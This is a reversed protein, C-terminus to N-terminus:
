LIKQITPYSSLVKYSQQSIREYLKLALGVDINQNYLEPFEMLIQDKNAVTVKKFKSIFELYDVINRKRDDDNSLANLDAKFLDYDYEKINVGHYELAIRRSICPVCYGCHKNEPIRSIMWCSASYKLNTRFAKPIIAIVEAKTLYLFPNQIEFQANSLLQRFASKITEVFYPDATHTSFPGVRSQNLPLHIAFQGNEAMFLVKNFGCRRTVLTALALFLFSRTRQSNERDETFPFEEFKRGYVKIHIHRVNRKFFDEISKHVNRQSDDVVTNGHSNHSLLVLEKNESLFKTAASLSDLGGSFLLVSGDKKNWEFTSVAAGAKQTFNLTWNDRSVIFLAKEIQKKVREFAHLNVVDITLEISRINQEREQRKISLDAGYVGAAVNLLDEELSNVDGFEREFPKFGTYLNKGPVLHFAFGRGEEGVKIRNATTAM